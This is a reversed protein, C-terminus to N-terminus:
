LISSNGFLGKYVSDPGTCGTNLWFIVEWVPVLHILYLDM